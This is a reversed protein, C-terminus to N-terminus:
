LRFGSPDEYDGCIVDVEQELRENYYALTDSTDADFWRINMPVWCSDDDDDDQRCKQLTPM